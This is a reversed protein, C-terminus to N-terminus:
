LFFLSLISDANVGQPSDVLSCEGVPSEVFNGPCMDFLVGMLDYPCHCLPYRGYLGFHFLCWTVNGVCSM